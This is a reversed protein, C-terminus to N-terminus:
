IYDDKLRHKKEIERHDKNYWCWFPCDPMNPNPMERGGNDIYALDKDNKRRWM